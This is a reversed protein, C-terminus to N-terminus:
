IDRQLDRAQIRLLRLSRKSGDLAPALFLLYRSLAIAPLLSAVIYRLDHNHTTIKLM